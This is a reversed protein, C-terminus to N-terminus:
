VGEIAYNMDIKQLTISGGGTGGVVKIAGILMSGTWLLELNGNQYIPVKKGILCTWNGLVDRVWVAASRTNLRGTSNVVQVFVQCLKYPEDFIKYVGLAQPSNTRIGSNLAWVGTGFTQKSIDVNCSTYNSTPEEILKIFGHDSVKFDFTQRLDCFDEPPSPECASCDVVLPLLSLLSLARQRLVTIPFVRLFDKFFSKFIAYQEATCNVLDIGEISDGICNLMDRNIDPTICPLANCAIHALWSEDDRICILATEHVFYKDTLDMFGQLHTELNMGFGVNNVWAIVAARRAASSAPVEIVASLFQVMYIAFLWEQFVYTWIECPTLDAETTPLGGDDDVPDTVIPTDPPFTVVGGECAEVDHWTCGDNLTYRLVRGDETDFWCMRFQAMDDGDLFELEDCDQIILHEDIIQRWYTAAQSGKTDGTKEWNWWETLGKLQGRFAARYEPADPILLEVCILPWGTIPSPLLYGKNQQSESSM